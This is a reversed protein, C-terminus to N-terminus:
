RIPPQEAASIPAHEPLYVVGNFQPYVVGRRILEQVALSVRHPNTDLDAAITKHMGSPWPQPPLKQRVLDVFADTMENGSSFETVSRIRLGDKARVISVEGGCESCKTSASGGPVPDMAVELVAKCFPCDIKEPKLVVLYHGKEKDFHAILPTGCASCDMTKVSAVKPRQKYTNLAGCSPCSQHVQNKETRPVRPLPVKIGTAATLAFRLDRRLSEVASQVEGTYQQKSKIEALQSTLQQEMDGIAQRIEQEREMQEERQQDLEDGIVGQWDSLSNDNFSKLTNILHIASEIREEKAQLEEEVNRYETYDLEQQLYTSLRSLESSLNNVKEAAKLAYTRLNTRHQEEVETIATDLQTSSYVDAVVWTALISLGTLVISMLGTERESLKGDRLVGICLVVGYIIAGLVLLRVALKAYNLSSNRFKM